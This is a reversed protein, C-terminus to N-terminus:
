YSASKIGEPSPYFGFVSGKHIHFRRCRVSPLLDCRQELAVPPEVREAGHLFLDDERHEGSAIRQGQHGRAAALREGILNRSQSRLAYADHDGRQDGQHFVLDIPEALQTDASQRDMRAQRGSLDVDVQVVADIAVHFEEVDSGFPECGLGEAQPHLSHVYRKEGDILGVADGLPAVIEPGGVQPDGLQALPNGADGHQSERGRGCRADRVVDHFLQAERFGMQQAAIKRTGVERIGHAMGVVFVFLEQPDDAVDATGADDIDAGAFSGFLDRSEQAVFTNGCFIIVASQSVGLARYPLIGPNRPTGGDHDSGVGEPHPDVLRVDAVHYM